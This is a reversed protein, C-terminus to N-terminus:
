VDQKKGDRTIQVRMTSDHSRLLWGNSGALDRLQTTYNSAPTLPLYKQVLQAVPVGNIQEIVDGPRVKSKIGLTDLYYGTVVLKDEIFKAMGLSIYTGKMNM